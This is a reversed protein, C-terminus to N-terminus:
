LSLRKLRLDDCVFLPNLYGAVTEKGLTWVYVHILLAPLSAPDFDEQDQNFLFSPAIGANRHVLM